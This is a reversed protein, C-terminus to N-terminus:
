RCPTGVAGHLRCHDCVCHDSMRHMAPFMMTPEHAAPNPLGLLPQYRADSADSDAMAVYRQEQLVVAPRGEKPGSSNHQVEEYSTAIYAPHAQAHTRAEEADLGASDIEDLVKESLITSSPSGLEVAGCVGSTIEDVNFPVLLPCIKGWGAVQQPVSGHSSPGVKRLWPVFARPGVPIDFSLARCSEVAAM